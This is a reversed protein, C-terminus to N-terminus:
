AGEHHTDRVGLTHLQAGLGTEGAVVELVASEVRYM